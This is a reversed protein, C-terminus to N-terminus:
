RLKMYSYSRHETTWGLSGYQSYGLLYFLDHLDVFAMKATAEILMLCVLTFKMQCINWSLEISTLKLDTCTYQALLLHKVLPLTVAAKYQMVYCCGPPFSWAWPEVSVTARGAWVLLQTSAALFIPSAGARLVHSIWCILGEDRTIKLPLIPLATLIQLEGAWPALTSFINTDLRSARSM